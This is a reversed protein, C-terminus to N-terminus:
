CTEPSFHLFKACNQIEPAIAELAEGVVDIDIISGAIELPLNVTSLSLTNIVHPRIVAGTFPAM